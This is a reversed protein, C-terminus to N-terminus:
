TGNPGDIAAFPQTGTSTARTRRRPSTTMGRRRLVEGITSPAPLEIDPRRHLLWARLKKPGWTPRAKRTAVLLDELEDPVKTPSALPRRSREVVASVKHDADRYRQLWMYGQQRSIGFQRCLAAFNLRGEGENWRKEWELVFKVREKAV